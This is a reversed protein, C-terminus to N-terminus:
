QQEPGFDTERLELNAATLENEQIEQAAHKQRLVALIAVAIMGLLIVFLILSWQPAYLGLISPYKDACGGNAFFYEPWWNALPLGNVFEGIPDSLCSTMSAGKTVQWIAIGIGAVAFFDAVIAYALMGIRGPGHTAAVLCVTALAMFAYRQLICLPCPQQRGPGYQLYGATALVAICTLGVIALILRPSIQKPM